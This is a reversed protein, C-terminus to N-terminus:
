GKPKGGMERERNTEVEREFREMLELRQSLIYAAVARGKTEPDYESWTHPPIGLSHRTMEEQALPPLFEIQVLNLLTRKMKPTKELKRM